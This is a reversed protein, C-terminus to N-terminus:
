FGLLFLTTPVTRWAVYAPPMLDKSDIRPSSLLKFVADGRASCDEYSKTIKGADRQFQCSKFYGLICTFQHPEFTFSDPPLYSSFEIRSLTHMINVTCVYLCMFLSDLMFYIFNIKHQLYAYTYRNTILPFDQLNENKDNHSFESLSVIALSPKKYFRKPKEV